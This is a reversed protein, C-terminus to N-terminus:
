TRASLLRDVAAPSVVDAVALQACGVRGAVEGHTTPLIVLENSAWAAACAYLTERLGAVFLDYAGALDGGIVLASPNLLNVVAAMSEGVRRGSDRVRRRAEADGANALAVLDRVHPVRGDAIPDQILAWGGAIAELCGVEGCRCLLGAAAPSKTHGIEGASGRAGQILRGAAFAGCGLGTSAKLVVLDPHARLHGAVESLALAKSDNEVHVVVDDLDSFYPALAIGDWGRMVPAAVCTSTSPDVTGPLSLGVGRVASEPVETQDLLSTLRSRVRGFLEDPGIGDPHDTEDSALVAGSLDCVAFQTRSRGVAVAFVAGAGANFELRTPPRGGTSTDGRVEVILGSDLLAALRATVATRSLGTVSAVEARTSVEGRRILDFVGGATTAPTASGTAM